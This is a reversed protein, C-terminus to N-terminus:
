YKQLIFNRKIVNSLFILTFSRCVIDIILFNLSESIVFYQFQIHKLIGHTSSDNKIKDKRKVQTTKSSFVKEHCASLTLNV